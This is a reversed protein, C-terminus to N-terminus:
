DNTETTKKTTTVGGLPTDISDKTITKSREDGLGNTETRSKTIETM